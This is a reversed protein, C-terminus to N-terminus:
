RRGLREDGVIAERVAVVLQAPAVPPALVAAADWDRGRRQLLDDLAVTTSHIVLPRTPVVGRVAALWDLSPLDPLVGNAVIAAYPRTALLDVADTATQATDM